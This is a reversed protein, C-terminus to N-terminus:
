GLLSMAARASTTVQTIDEVVSSELVRELETRIIADKKSIAIMTFDHTVIGCTEPIVRPNLEDNM